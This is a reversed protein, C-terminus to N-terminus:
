SCGCDREKAYYVGAPTTVRWQDRRDGEIMTVGDVRIDGFGEARIRLVGDRALLHAHLVIQADPTTVTVDSLALQDSM